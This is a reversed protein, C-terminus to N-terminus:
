QHPELKIPSLPLPTATTLACAWHNFYSSEEVQWVAEVHCQEYTDYYGIKVTDGEQMSVIFLLTWKLM